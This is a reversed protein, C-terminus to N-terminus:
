DPSGPVSLEIAVNAVDAGTQVQYRTMGPELVQSHQKPQGAETWHHTVTLPSAARPRDDLCHAFMRYANLPFGTYRVYVVDGAGPSLGVQTDFNYHWHAQPTPRAIVNVGGDGDGFVPTFERPTNIAYEIANKPPKADSGVPMGFSAGVSFWDIKTRPLSPLRAIMTGRARAARSTPDYEQPARLLYHLFANEDTANPQIALVRTPRGFQDGTKLELPNEGAQLSPLTAPATQVWTTIKLSKLLASGPKGKLGIKLLYGYSGAVHPTMDITTPWQKTELTIWTDGFDPSWALSADSADIEVVSADKDDKPDEIKGVLPVIVYPSRVEFVAWGDGPKELTLGDDTIRVNQSDFVGDDFDAADKKLNPRYVFQGNGHSHRTFTAHKSKPGRPEQELLQRRAPDKADDPSVLWRGGQPQWWRQFREGRRLVFDLTHGSPAVGYRHEIKSQSFQQSLKQLDDM